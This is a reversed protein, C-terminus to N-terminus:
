TAQRSSGATDQRWAFYSYVVTGLTSTALAAMIVWVRWAAPLAAAAIVVLGAASFLYGGVRHTKEWARDSSLTWPTRIGIFWNPRVRPLVNGLLLFLLGIGVIMVTDIAIPWGLAAGLVLVHIAVQFLIVAAVVLSYTSGFRAYNARRPDIRPLVLFLLWIGLAVTPMLFAGLARSSWGDVQGAANWHSPIREPLRAYVALSFAYAGAIFALPLWRRDLLKM